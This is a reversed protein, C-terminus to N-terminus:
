VKSTSVFSGVVEGRLMKICDYFPAAAGGISRSSPTTALLGRAVDMTSTSAAVPTPRLPTMSLSVPGARCTGFLPNHLRVRELQEAVGRTLVVGILQKSARSVVTMWVGHPELRHVCGGTCIVENEIVLCHACTPLPAPTPAPVPLRGKAM